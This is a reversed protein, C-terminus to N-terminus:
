RKTWIRTNLNLDEVIGMMLNLDDFYQEVVNFDLMSTFLKPELLNKSYPVAMFLKSNIFSLYLKKGTKKKYEVIREMLSTSLIYRAEVQDEGYVVFYKEFEPNELKILDPRSINKKQLFSGFGGFLKEATDPLVYTATQFDKNFDAIFFMGKFFTHYQKRGKSDRTVTQAKVESFDIQTVGLIGTVRDEGHYEDPKKLFIRSENFISMPIRDDKHYRFGKDFFRVIKKIVREKFDSVYKATLVKFTIALAGAGAFLIFFKVNSGPVALALIATVACIPVVAAILRSVVSKRQQEIETIDPLLEQEYFLKFDDSTKM